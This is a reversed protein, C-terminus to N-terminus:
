LKDGPGGLLRELVVFIALCLGLLVVATVGAADSQYSGLRQYMLLPLTQIDPSGFLAVVGLDGASMAAVLALALGIPKRLIPWEVLRLRHWGQVGLSSCLRGYDRGIQLYAVSLVRLMYPLGMLANVLVVIYLNIAFVNVHPSLGIFLGTALVLPPVVLIVSGMWEVTVAAAPYRELWHRQALLLGAAMLLSLSASSLAVWLSNSFARWLRLDLLVDAWATNFGAIVVALLPLLVLLTALSLVVADSVIGLWPKLDPRMNKVSTGISAFIDIPRGLRLGVWLISGCFVVQLLSLYVAKAIDFDFRIAQFIAVEITTAKPGGGLTMVIAFSTFCLAFVLAALQPLVGKIHPWEIHRWLDMSTMGLQSSLRWTEGNVADLRQLIIRAALPLNFFVHALLIGTLGYVYSQPQGGFWLWLQNFYGYKGHLLIIGFVAIISPVVLAVSFCRLLLWRGVFSQRRALARAVLVAASLSIITSLSAQWWSFWVVRWTYADTIYSLWQAQGLYSSFAAMALLLPLLVLGFSISSFWLWHTSSQTKNV